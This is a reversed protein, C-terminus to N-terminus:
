AGGALWRGAEALAEAYSLARGEAEAALFAAPGLSDRAAAVLPVLFAEDTPDRRLGTLENQAEATGFFLAARAWDRRSAALGACVELLSQGV